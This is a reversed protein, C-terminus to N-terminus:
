KKKSKSIPAKGKSRLKEDVLKLTEDKRPWGLQNDVFFKVKNCYQKADDKDQNERICKKVNYAKKYVQFLYETEQNSLRM